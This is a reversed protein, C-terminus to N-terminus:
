HVASQTESPSIQYFNFGILICPLRENGYFTLLHSQPFWPDTHRCGVWSVSADAPASTSTAAARTAIFKVARIDPEDSATISGIGSWTSAATSSSLLLNLVLRVMVLEFLMCPYNFKSQMLLVLSLEIFMQEMKQPTYMCTSSNNHKRWKLTFSFFFLVGYLLGRRSAKSWTYHPFNFWLYSFLIHNPIKYETIEHFLQLCSFM